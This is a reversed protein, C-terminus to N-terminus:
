AASYKDFLLTAEQIKRVFMEAVDECKYMYIPRSFRSVVCSVVYFMSQTRPLALISSWM